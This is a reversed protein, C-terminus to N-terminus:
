MKMTSPWLIILQKFNASINPLTKYYFRETAYIPELQLPLVQPTLYWSPHKRGVSYPNPSPATGGEWFIKQNKTHFHRTKTCKPM